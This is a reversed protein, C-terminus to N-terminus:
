GSALKILDIGGIRADRILCLAILGSRPNISGGYVGTAPNKALM